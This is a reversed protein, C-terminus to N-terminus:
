KCSLAIYRKVMQLKAMLPLRKLHIMEKMANKANDIGVVSAAYADANREIKPCGFVCALAYSLQHGALKTSDGAKIHGREHCLFFNQAEPSLTYFLDDTIIVNVITGIATAMAMTGSVLLGAAKVTEPAYYIVGEYAPKGTIETRVADEFKM